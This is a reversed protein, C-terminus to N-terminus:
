IPIALKKMLFRVSNEFNQSTNSSFLQQKKKKLYASKEARFSNKRRARSIIWSKRVHWQNRIWMTLIYTCTTGRSSTFTTSALPHSLLLSCHNYVLSRCLYMFFYDTFFWRTRSRLIYDSLFYEGIVYRRIFLPCVLMTRIYIHMLVIYIYEYYM